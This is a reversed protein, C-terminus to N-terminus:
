RLTPNIQTLWNGSLHHYRWDVPSHANHRLVPMIQEVSRAIDCAGFPDVGAIVVICNGLHLCSFQAASRLDPVSLPEDGPDLCGAGPCLARLTSGSLKPGAAEELQPQPSSAPRDLHGRAAAAVPASVVWGSLSVIAAGILNVIMDWMTDTLGSPDGLMPKQMNLGFIQDMSFEFIEWRHRAGARVRVRVDRRLQAADEGPSRPEREACLRDPLRAARASGRPETFLSTGGGSGSTIIACKAWSSRRSCSCRDGPDPDRVSDPGLAEAAGAGSRPDRGDGRHGPLRADVRRPADAAVLEVAMLSQLAVLVLLHARRAIGTHRPHEGKEQDNM